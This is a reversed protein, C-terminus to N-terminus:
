RKSSVRGSTVFNGISTGKGSPAISASPLENGSPVFVFEKKDSYRSFVNSDESTNLGSTNLSM